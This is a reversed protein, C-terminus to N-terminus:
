RFDVYKDSRGFGILDPVIVRYGQAVLYPILKHFSQSWFPEGHLCVVVERSSRDGEDLYHLRLWQGRVHIYTYHAQFYDSM